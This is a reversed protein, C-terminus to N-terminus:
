GERRFLLDAQLCVGAASYFPNYCGVLDFGRDRLWAVVDAALKQGEYLEFFSCECYVQDIFQLTTESGLLVEYEFGQVDIKLLAPRALMPGDVLEALTAVEVAEVGVERSGPFVSRQLDGMARLSSSDDDSSVHMIASGGAGGLAVQHILVRSDGSFVERYLGAAVALPEFAVIMANPLLHRVALSFQGRNAGVDLVTEFGSAIVSNHEVGAVVRKFTLAYLLDYSGLIRLFKLIRLHLLAFSM